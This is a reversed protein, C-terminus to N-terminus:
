DYLQQKLVKLKSSDLIHRKLFPLPIDQKTYANQLNNLGGGGGKETLVHAMYHFIIFDVCAKFYPYFTFTLFYVHLLIHIYIM